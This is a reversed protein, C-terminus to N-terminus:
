VWVRVEELNPNKNPYHVWGWVEVCIKRGGEVGYWVWFWVWVSKPKSVWVERGGVWAEAGLVLGLRNPNPNSKGYDVWVWVWVERNM